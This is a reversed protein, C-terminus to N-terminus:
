RDRQAVLAQLDRWSQEHELAALYDRWRGLPILPRVFLAAQSAFFGLPAIADLALRAPAALRRRCIADAIQQLIQDRQEGNM